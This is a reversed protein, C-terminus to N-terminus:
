PKFDQMARALDEPTGIDLWRGQPFTEAEVPHGEALWAQLVNGVYFERSELQDMADMKRAAKVLRALHEHLYRSFEPTWVAMVWCTGPTARDPKIEIATVRGDADTEVMDTKRPNDTPFLGLVVDAGTREQRELLPSYADRPHLLIDPYGLAIRNNEIFPWAQDISFPSGYPHGMMLYALHMGFDQGDQFFDPIDWKGPRIVMFARRIHAAQFRELLYQCAVKPRLGRDDGPDIGLPFVEKSCPLNGLRRGWGAAPILGIVDSSKEPARSM